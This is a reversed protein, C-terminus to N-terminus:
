LDRKFVFRRKREQIEDIFVFGSRDGLILRIQKILAEQSFFSGTQRLILILGLRRKERKALHDKLQTLLYTKGAQRPGAL